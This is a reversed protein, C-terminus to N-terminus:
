SAEGTNKKYQIEARAALSEAAAIIRGMAERAGQEDNCWTASARLSQAANWAADMVTKLDDETAYKAWEASM